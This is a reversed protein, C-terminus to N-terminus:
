PRENPRFLCESGQSSNRSTSITFIPSPFIWPRFFHYASFGKQWTHRSMHQHTKAGDLLTLEDPSQRICHGGSVAGSKGKMSKSCMPCKDVKEGPKSKAGARSEPRSPPDDYDDPEEMGMGEDDGEDWEMTLDLSEGRPRGLTELPREPPIEEIAEGDVEIESGDGDGHGEGTIDRDRSDSPDEEEEFMGPHQSDADDGGNGYDDDDDLEENPNSATNVISPWNSPPKFDPVGEFVPRPSEPKPPPVPGFAKATPSTDSKTTVIPPSQSRSPGAGPSAPLVDGDPRPSRVTRQRKVPATDEEDSSIVVPDASNDGGVVAKEKGKRSSGGNARKGDLSIDPKVDDM